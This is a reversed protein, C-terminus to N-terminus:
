IESTWKSLILSRNLGHSPVHSAARHSGVTAATATVWCYTRQAPFPPFSEGWRGEWDGVEKESVGPGDQEGKDM